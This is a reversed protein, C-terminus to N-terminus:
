PDPTAMIQPTPRLCLESGKNSHSHYLSAATAGIRSRAQSGGYAVPAARFFCFIFPFYIFLLPFLTKPDLNLLLHYRLLGKCTGGQSCFEGWVGGEKKDLKLRCKKGGLHRKEGLKISIDDGCLKPTNLTNLPLVQHTYADPLM